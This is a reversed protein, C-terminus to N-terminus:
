FDDGPAKTQVHCCKRYPGVQSKLMVRPISKVGSIFRNWLQYKQVHIPGRFRNWPIFEALRHLRAPRYLLGIGVRHRAGMSKKFIGARGEACSWLDAM